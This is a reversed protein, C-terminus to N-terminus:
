LGRYHRKRFPGNVMGARVDRSWGPGIAGDDPQSTDLRLGAIVVFAHGGNYYVTIWEGKGRKGWRRFDGSPLPAELIGAGKPGLAYSITGSCDYCRSSWSRHGGGLCYGSDDIQNAAAIARKVAAPANEPAAALGNRLLKAKSGAVTQTAAGAPGAPGIGGSGAGAVAPIALMAAACAAAALVGHRITPTSLTGETEQAKGAPNASPSAGLLLAGVEVPPSAGVM